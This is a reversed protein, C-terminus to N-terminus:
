TLGGTLAALARATAAPFDEAAADRGELDRRLRELDEPRDIDYGPELVRYRMGAGELRSLTERLVAGTSWAVDRFIEAARAGAALGIACYGGDEAPILVAGNGAALQTFVEELRQRSLAPHDSGVAVVASSGREFERVFARELRKGLDGAVQTERAWASSFIAGLPAGEPEAEAYLVSRWSPSLYARAADELFARYLEAAGAPTLRPALRTKVRGAEPARAFLILSPLPAM